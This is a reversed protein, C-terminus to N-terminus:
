KKEGSVLKVVVGGADEEPNTQPIANLAKERAEEKDTKAKLIEAVRASILGHIEPKAKFSDVFMQLAIPNEDVMNEVITTFMATDATSQPFVEKGFATNVLPPALNMLKEQFALGKIERIETMRYEHSRDQERAFAMVSERILQANERMASLLSNGLFTILEAQAKDLHAQKNYVQSQSGELHRMRQAEPGHGAPGESGFGDRPLKSRIPLPHWAEPQPRDGYFAWLEFMQTGSGTSGLDQAVSRAKREFIEALQKASDGNVNGVWVERGDDVGRMHVLAIRTCSRDDRKETMVEQIWQDLTQRDYNM